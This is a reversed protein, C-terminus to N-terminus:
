QCIQGVSFVYSMKHIGIQEIAGSFSLFYQGLFLDM